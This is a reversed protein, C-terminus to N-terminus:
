AVAFDSLPQITVNSQGTLQAKRPPSARPTARRAASITFVQNGRTVSACSTSSSAPQAATSSGAAAAMLARLTRRPRPSADDFDHERGDIAREGNGDDAGSDRDDSHIGGGNSRGRGGGARGACGGGVGTDATGDLAHIVLVVVINAEPLERGPKGSGGGAAPDRKGADRQVPLRM